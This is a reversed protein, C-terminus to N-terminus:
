RVRKKVLKGDVDLLASDRFIRIVKIGNRKEGQKMLMGNISVIPSVPDWIIGQIVVAKQAPQKPGAKAGPQQAKAPQTSSRVTGLPVETASVAEVEERKRVRFMNRFNAPPKYETGQPPVEIKMPAAESEMSIDENSM